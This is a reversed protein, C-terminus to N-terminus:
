PSSCTACAARNAEAALRSQLEKLNKLPAAAKLLGRMGKASRASDGAVYVATVYDSFLGAPDACPAAADACRGPRDAGAQETGVEDVEPV